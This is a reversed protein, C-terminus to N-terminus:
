AVLQPERQLSGCLRLATLLESNQAPKSMWKGALFSSKNDGAYRPEGSYVVFPVSRSNLIDVVKDCYGDRLRPDVVAIDPTNDKLWIEAASCSSIIEVHNFGADELVDAVDLAILAEDELLLATKAPLGNTMIVEKVVNEATYCV